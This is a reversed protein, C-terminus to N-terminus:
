DSRYTPAQRTRGAAALLRRAAARRPETGAATQTPALAQAQWEMDLPLAARSGGGSGADGYGGDRSGDDDSGADDSGDSAHGGAWDRLMQPREAGYSSFLTALHAATAWRRGRRYGRIEGAGLHEALLASGRSM